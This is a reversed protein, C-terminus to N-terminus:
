IRPARIAPRPKTAAKDEAGEAAQKAALLYSLWLGLTVLFPLNALGLVLAFPLGTVVWLFDARLLTRVAGQLTVLAVAIARDRARPFIGRALLLTPAVLLVYSYIMMRPSLLAFLISGIVVWELADKRTWARRM